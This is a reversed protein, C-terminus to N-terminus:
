QVMDPYPALEVDEEQVVSSSEVGFVFSDMTVLKDKRPDYIVAKQISPLIVLIDGDTASQYFTQERALEDANTIIAYIAQNDSAVILHRQIRELARQQMSQDTAITEDFESRAFFVIAYHYLGAILVVLAVIVIIKIKTNGQTTTHIYTDDQM